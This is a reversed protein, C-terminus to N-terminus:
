RLGALPWDVVWCTLGLQSLLVALILLLVRGVWLSSIFPQPSGLTSARIVSGLKFIVKCYDLTTKTEGSSQCEELALVM